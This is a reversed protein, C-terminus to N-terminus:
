LWGVRNKTYILILVSGLGLAPVLVIGAEPGFLGGTWLEPGKVSSVILNYTETGSVPFGFVVGEFFNWGIHLGISLWLQQTRIYGLALFIGALTIGIASVWTAHPNGFHLISFVIASVFVGWYLNLGSAINQLHYGRSLLEENWGVLIFGALYLLTQTIVRTISDNEWAFGNFTLWGMSLEMLFIFGIMVLAIGFGAGLDFLLFRDVKVGLSTISRKDLFRRAFFVSIGVAFLEAVQSLLLGEGTFFFELNFIFPSLFCILLIGLITSQILIRWGARLRTETSSIFITRINNV